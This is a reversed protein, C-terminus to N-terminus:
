ADKRRSPGPTRKGSNLVTRCFLDRQMPQSMFSNADMETTARGSRPEPDGGRLRLQEKQADTLEPYEVMPKTLGTDVPPAVSEGSSKHIIDRVSDHLTWQGGYKSFVNNVDVPGVLTRTQSFDVNNEHNYDRVVDKVTKGRLVTEYAPNRLYRPRADAETHTLRISSRIARDKFNDWDASLLCSKRFAGIQRHVGPMFGPISTGTNQRYGDVRPLPPAPGV